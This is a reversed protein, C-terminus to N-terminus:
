QRRAGPAANLGFLSRLKPMPIAGGTWRKRTSMVCNGGTARASPSQAKRSRDGGGLPCTGPAPDRRYQLVPRRRVHDRGPCRQAGQRPWSPRRPWLPMRSMLMQVPFRRHRSPGSPKLHGLRMVSLTQRVSRYLPMSPPATTRAAKSRWHAAWCRPESAYGWCAWGEPM